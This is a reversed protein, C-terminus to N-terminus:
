PSPIDGGREVTLGSDFMAFTPNLVVRGAILAHGKTFGSAREIFSGPVQSFHRALHLRDPQSNLQMLVLNDCQSLVQDHIKAPQQTALVLYLGFKRGEGAIRILLDTMVVELPSLPSQPCLNHAEDVVLLVPAKDHRRRWFHELTAIAAVAQEDRHSLVGIDVVVCRWDSRLVDLISTEGTTCWLGWDELERNGIRQLLRYIESARIRRETREDYEQLMLLESATGPVGTIISGDAGHTRRIGLRGEEAAIRRAMESSVRKATAREAATREAIMETLDALSFDAELDGAINRLSAFEDPTKSADLGLAAGQTRSDLSGFSVRLVDTGEGAHTVPRAIRMAPAIDDLREKLDAYEASPLERQGYEERKENIDSLDRLKNLLVYESNPDLLVIRSSTELLIREIMVRLANSKGSGSQGCVLTHRGFGKDNLFVRAPSETYLTTGVDMLEAEKASDPCSGLYHQLLERRAECVEADDFTDGHSPTRFQGDEIAKLLLGRGRLYRVPAHTTYQATPTRSEAQSDDPEVTLEYQPGERELVQQSVVQGLFTMESGALVEVYSGLALPSALSSECVFERGDISYATPSPPVMRREVARLLALHEDATRIRPVGRRRLVM